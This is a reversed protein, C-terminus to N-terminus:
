QKGQLQFTIGCSCEWWHSPQRSGGLAGWSSLPSIESSSSCFEKHSPIELFVSPMRRKLPTPYSSGMRSEGGRQREWEGSPVATSIAGMDQM